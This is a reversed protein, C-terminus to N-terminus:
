AVWPDTIVPTGDARQMINETHLDWHWGHQQMELSLDQMLSYFSEWWDEQEPTMNEVMKVLKAAPVSRYMSWMRPDHLQEMIEYWETGDAVLDSLIWAMAETFSNRTLPQLKEMVVQTFEQGSVEIQVIDQFEPLFNSPNTQCFEM